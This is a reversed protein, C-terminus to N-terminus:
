TFIYHQIKDEINRFRYRLFMNEIKKPYKFVKYINALKIERKVGKLMEFASYRFIKM